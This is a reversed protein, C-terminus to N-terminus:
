AVSLKRLGKALGVNKILNCVLAAEKSEEGERSREVLSGGVQASGEGGGSEGELGRLYM